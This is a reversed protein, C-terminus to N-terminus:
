DKKKTRERTKLGQYVFNKVFVGGIFKKTNIHNKQGAEGGGVLALGPKWTKKKKEGCVVMREGKCPSKVECGKLATTEQETFKKKERSFRFSLFREM